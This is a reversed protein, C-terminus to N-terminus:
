VFTCIVPAYHVMFTVIDLPGCAQALCVTITGTNLSNTSKNRWLSKLGTSCSIKFSDCIRDSSLCCDSLTLCSQFKSEKTIWDYVKPGKLCIDEM